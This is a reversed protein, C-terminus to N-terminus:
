PDAAEIVRLVALLVRPDLMATAHELQAMRWQRLPPGPATADWEAEAGPFLAGGSTRPVVGDGTPPRHPVIGDGGFGVDDDTDLGYGFVAWTREPDFRFGPAAAHYARVEALRDPLNAAVFPDAAPDALGPPRPADYVGGPTDGFQVGFPPNWDVGGLGRYQPAPLLQMAGPLGCVHLAFEEPSDGVLLRFPLDRLGGDLGGVAGTFFRRYFVVAGHVPQCVHVVARVAAALAPDQQLAARAVLGGLSHTVLVVGGGSARERIGAAVTRGLTIIDQRWDYGLAFVTDGRAARLGRLFGAYYSAVVGEWGFGREDPRIDDPDGVVEAPEDRHMQRAVRGGAGAAAALVWPLMRWTSDPDWYRGTTPFHLRTGMIGPLVVVPLSM